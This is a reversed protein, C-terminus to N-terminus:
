QHRCNADHVHSLRLNVLHAIALLSGGASVLWAHALASQDIDVLVGAFLLLLAPLLVALANVRRHRRYGLLLMVTALSCAFVIFGREVAHDALVALGLTPLVALVFPLLACHVACLFSATAGLRDAMAAFGVFRRRPATTQASPDTSNLAAVECSM